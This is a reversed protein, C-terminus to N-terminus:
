KQRGSMPDRLWAALRSADESEEGDLVLAACDLDRPHPIYMMPWDTADFNAQYHEAALLVARALVRCREESNM